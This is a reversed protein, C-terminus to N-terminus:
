ISEYIPGHKDFKLIINHNILNILFKYSTKNFPQKSQTCVKYLCIGVSQSSAMACRGHAGRVGEVGLEVKIRPIVISLRM